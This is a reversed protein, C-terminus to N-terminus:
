QPVRLLATRSPRSVLTTSSGLPRATYVGGDIVTGGPRFAFGPTGADGIELRFVTRNSISKLQQFYLTPTPELRFTKLPHKAFRSGRGAVRSRCFASRAQDNRGPITTM